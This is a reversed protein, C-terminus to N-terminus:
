SRMLEEWRPLLMSLYLETSCQECKYGYTPSSFSNKVMGAEMRKKCKPCSVWLNLQHFENKSLSGIKGCESCNATVYGDEKSEVLLTPASCCKSRRRPGVIRVPYSKWGKRIQEDFKFINKM